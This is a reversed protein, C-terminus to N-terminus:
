ELYFVDNNHAVVAARSDLGCEIVCAYAYGVGPDSMDSIDAIFVPRIKSANHIPTSAKICETLEIHDFLNNNNVDNYVRLRGLGAGNTGDTIQGMLAKQPLFTFDVNAQENPLINVTQTGNAPSVPISNAPSGSLLSIVMTTNSPLGTFEYTGDSATTALPEFPNRTGNNNLDAYINVGSYTPEGIDYM